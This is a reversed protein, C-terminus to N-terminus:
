LDTSWCEIILINYDNFFHRLVVRIDIGGHNVLGHVLCFISFIHNKVFLWLIVIKLVRLIKDAFFNLPHTCTLCLNEGHLHAFNSMSLHAFVM